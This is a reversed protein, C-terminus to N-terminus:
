LYILENLVIEEARLRINNMRSIWLIPDLAKLQETLNEVKAMQSVIRELRDNAAHDIEMLHADLKGSLM